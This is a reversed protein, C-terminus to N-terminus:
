GGDPTPERDADSDAYIVGGANADVVGVTDAHRADADIDARAFDSAEASARFRMRHALGLDRIPHPCCHRLVGARTM